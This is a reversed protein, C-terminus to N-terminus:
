QLISGSTYGQGVYACGGGKDVDGVLSVNTVVPSGASSSGVM